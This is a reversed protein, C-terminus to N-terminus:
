AFVSGAVHRWQPLPLALCQPLFDLHMTPLFRLNKDRDRNSRSGQESAGPESARCCSSSITGSEHHIRFTKTGSQNQQKCVLPRIRFSFMGTQDHRRLNQIRFRFHSSQIRFSKFGSLKATYVSKERIRINKRWRYKQTHPVVLIASRAIWLRLRILPWQYRDSTAEENEWLDPYDKLKYHNIRYEESVLFAACVNNVDEM